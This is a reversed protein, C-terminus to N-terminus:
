ASSEAPCWLSSPRSPPPSQEPSSTVL